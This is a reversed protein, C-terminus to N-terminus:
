TGEFQLLFEGVQQGPWKKNYRKEVREHVAVSLRARGDSSEEPSEPCVILVGTRLARLHVVHRLRWLLGLDHDAHGATHIRRDSRQQQLLLPVVDDPYKHLVPIVRVFETVACRCVVEFVHALDTIM